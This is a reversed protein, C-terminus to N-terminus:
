FFITFIYNLYDAIKKNGNLNNVLCMIDYEVGYLSHDTAVGRYYNFWGRLMQNLERCINEFSFVFDGKLIGDIRTLLSAISKQTPLTTINKGERIIKYGLFTFGTDIHFLSTKEISLELGREALFRIVLPVVSQVLIAKSEGFIVIDDAYRVMRVSTGMENALIKELGDLTMNCIVASLCGGQPVGKATEYFVGNDIYGCKLFNSLMKRDMPINELIWKHSINDFCSRIDAKLIWRMNSNETLIDVCRAVAGRASREPRFGFSCDDATLEAIPELAFKYLTQMARDKMTPISLPRLTGSSKPIYIRKLPLAKYGRRTLMCILQYKEDNTMCVVDDIGPTLKGRNSTVIKVALAKAYFSHILTHQLMAAKDFCRNSYALAIRKQLKIIHREAKRFDIDEWALAVDSTACPKGNIKSM